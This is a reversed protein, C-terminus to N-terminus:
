QSVGVQSVHGCIKNASRSAAPILALLPTRVDLVQRGAQDALHVLAHRGDILLAVPAQLRLVLRHPLNASVQQAKLLAQLAFLCCPLHQM